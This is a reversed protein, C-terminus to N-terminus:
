KSYINARKKALCTELLQVINTNNLQTSENTYIANSWDRNINEQAWHLRKKMHTKSLLSKIVTSSRKIGSRQLKDRIKNCSMYVGKRFFKKKTERLNLLTKKKFLLAISQSESTM